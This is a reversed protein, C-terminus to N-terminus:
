ENPRRRKKNRWSFFANAVVLAGALWWITANEWAPYPMLRFFKYDALLLSLAALMAVCFWTFADKM